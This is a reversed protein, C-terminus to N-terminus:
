KFITDFLEKYIPMSPLILKSMTDRLFSDTNNGCGTLGLLQKLGVYIEGSASKLDDPANGRAVSNLLSQKKINLSDTILDPHGKSVCLASIVSDDLLYSELNRRKLVKAGGNIAEDIEAQSRDDRDVLVVIKNKPLLFKAFGILRNDPKLMETCSDASYFIVSKENSFINRLCKADFDRRVNGACSGECFVITDEVLFNNLSDLALEFMKDVLEANPSSPMILVSDDFDKNDFNLFAVSGPSKKELEMAKQIMGLSHTAIWIQSKENILNYIEELLKGQLRTHMHTEPEDICFITDPYYAEKVILDLLIDFAAKEGGSLNKYDFDKSIGKEFYFSGNKSPDGLTSLVLEGGFVRKLSDNIKGILENRLEFVKLSDKSGGYVDQLTKSVIRQYNQSITVDNKIMRKDRNFSYPDETQGIGNIRFEPENRYATRFYFASRYDKQSLAHNDLAININKCYSTNVDVGPAKKIAYESDVTSRAFQYYQWLYMADLLSSKGCGNGGVLVILKSDCLSLDVFLDTFRKFNKLRISKVKM